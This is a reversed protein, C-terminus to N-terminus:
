RPPVTFIHKKKLKLINSFNILVILFYLNIFHKKYNSVVLTISNFSVNQHTIFIAYLSGKGRFQGLVKAKDFTPNM